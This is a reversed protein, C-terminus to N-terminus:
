EGRPVFQKSSEPAAEYINTLLGRTFTTIRGAISPLSGSEGHPGAGDNSGTDTPEKVRFAELTGRASVPDLRLLPVLVQLTEVNQADASPLLQIEALKKECDALFQLPEFAGPGEPFIELLQEAVQLVVEKLGAEPLDKTPDIATLVQAHARMKALIRDREPPKMGKCALEHLEDYLKERTNRYTVIIAQLEGEKGLMPEADLLDAKVASLVRVYKLTQPQLKDRPGNAGRHHVDNKWNKLYTREANTQELMERALTHLENLAVGDGKAPHPVLLRGAPSLCAAKRFEAAARLPDVIAGGPKSLRVADSLRAERLAPLYNSDPPRPLDGLLKALYALVVAGEPQGSAEEWVINRYISHVSLEEVKRLQCIDRLLEQLRSDFQDSQLFNFRQLELGDLASDINRLVQAVQDLQKAIVDAPERLAGQTRTVPLAAAWRSIVEREEKSFGSLWAL